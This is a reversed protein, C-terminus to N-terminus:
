PKRKKPVKKKITARKRAVKKKPTPHDGILEERDKKNEDFFKKFGLYTAIGAILGVACKVAVEIQDDLFEIMEPNSNIAYCAGLVVFLWGGKQKFDTM